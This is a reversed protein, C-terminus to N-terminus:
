LVRSPSPMGATPFSQCYEYFARGFSFCGLQRPCRDLPRKAFPRVAKVLAVTERLRLALGERGFQAALTAPTRGAADEMDGVAWSALLLGIAADHGGDLRWGCVALHLATLGSAGAVADRDAGADLLLGVAADHGRFAATMLATVGNAAARSADAGAALLQGIAALRNHYAAQMLATEGHKGNARDVDRRVELLASLLATWGMGAAERIGNHWAAYARTRLVRSCCALRGRGRSGLHQVVLDLVEEPLDDLTHQAKAAPEHKPAVANPSAVDGGVRARKMPTVCIPRNGLPLALTGTM